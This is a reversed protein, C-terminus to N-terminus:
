GITARARRMCSKGMPVFARNGAAMVTMSAGLMVGAVIAILWQKTSNREM